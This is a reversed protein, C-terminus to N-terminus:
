RNAALRGAALLTREMVTNPYHEWKADLEEGPPLLRLIRPAKGFHATVQKFAPLVVDETFSREYGYRPYNEALVGFCIFLAFFRPYFDRPRDRGWFDAFDVVPPRLTPDIAVALLEEHFGLFPTEDLCRMNAFGIGEAEDFSVIRIHRFADAKTQVPLKALRLKSPNVAPTFRDEPGMVVLPSRGAIRALRLFRIMEYNPTAVTRFLVLPRGAFATAMEPSLGSFRLVEAELKTDPVTDCSVRCRLLCEYIELDAVSEKASFKM